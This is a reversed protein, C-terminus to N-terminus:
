KVQWVRESQALLGADRLVHLQQRIKNRVDGKGPRLQKLERAHAYVDASTFEDKRLRRVVNLVDLAWGRRSAPIDALPKLRRFKERVEEVRSIMICETDGAGSPSITTVITIRADPPIRDLAFSCDKGRARKVIASPSIAFHPVLLVDRVAWTALDYHVFFYSVGDESRISRMAVDYAGDVLTHGFRAKQGRIHFRFKCKPCGLDSAEALPTLRELKPSSCNPCYLNQEGWFEPVVRGPQSHDAAALEGNM